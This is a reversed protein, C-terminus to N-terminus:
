REKALLLITIGIAAFAILDTLSFVSELWLAALLASVVLETVSLMSVKVPGIDSLGQLYLLSSLLTGFLITASLALWGQIPIPVRMTWSQATLNILIGGILMGLGAVVQRDWRELLSRPLLTYLTAGLATMFGWFLGQPSLILQTPKGGTVLLYVGVLALILAISERPKPMRRGTLCSLLMVLILSLNQLMTATPANSSFVANAAAYQFLLLGFIGYCMLLAADKPSRWIQVMSRRHRPLALLILVAGGALLRVCTVFLTSIEFHTFLYQGCVGSIAWCCSALVTCVIGRLTRTRSVHM